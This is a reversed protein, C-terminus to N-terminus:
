LGGSLQGPRPVRPERVGFPPTKPPTGESDHPWKITVSVPPLDVRYRTDSNTSPRHYIKPWVTLLYEGANTVSFYDALSFESLPGGGYVLAGSYHATPHPSHARAERLSFSAPYAGASFAEPNRPQIVTGKPNRLEVPGCIANTAQFYLAEDTSAKRFFSIADGPVGPEVQGSFGGVNTNAVAVSISPLQNHDTGWLVSAQASIGNTPAGRIWEPSAFGPPVPSVTQNMQALVQGALICTFIAVPAAFHLSAKLFALGHGAVRFARSHLARLSRPLYNEFVM